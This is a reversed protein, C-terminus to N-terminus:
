DERVEEMGVRQLVIERLYKFLFPVVTYQGNRVFEVALMKFLDDLLLEDGTSTVERLLCANHVSTRLAKSKTGVFYYVKGNDHFYKIDLLASFYEERVEKNRPTPHLLIGRTNMLYRNFAQMSKKRIGVVNLIEGIQIEEVDWSNLLNQLKEMDETKSYKEEEIGVFEELAEKLISVKISNGKDTAELAEALKFLNPLTTQETKCIVNINAYDQYM